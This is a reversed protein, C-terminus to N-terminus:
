KSGVKTTVMACGTRPIMELLDTDVMLPPHCSKLTPGAKCPSGAPVLLMERSGATSIPACCLAMVQESTLLVKRSSGELGGSSHSPARVSRPQREGRSVIETFLDRAAVGM